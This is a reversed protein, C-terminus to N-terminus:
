LNFACSLALHLLSRQSVSQDRRAPFIHQAGPISPLYMSKSFIIIIIYSKTLHSNAATILHIGLQLSSKQIHKQWAGFLTNRNHKVDCRTWTNDCRWLGQDEVSSVPQESKSCRWTVKQLNTASQIWNKKHSFNKYSCSASKQEFNLFFALRLM